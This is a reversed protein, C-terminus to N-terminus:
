LEVTAIARCRDSPVDDRAGCPSLAGAGRRGHAPLPHSRHGPHAALAPRPLSHLRRAVGQAPEVAEPAAGLTRLYWHKEQPRFAEVKSEHFRERRGSPTFREFIDLLTNRIKNVKGDPSQSTLAGIVKGTEEDIAVDLTSIYGIKLGLTVDAAMLKRCAEESPFM